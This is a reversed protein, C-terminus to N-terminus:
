VAEVARKALGEVDTRSLVGTKSTIVVGGPGLVVTTPVSVSRQLSGPPATWLHWSANHDVRYAITEDLPSFSIATFTVGTGGLARRLEQWQEFNTECYPCTTTMLGVVVPGADALSHLTGTDGATSTLQIDPLIQGAGLQGRSEDRGALAEKLARNQGVLTWIVGTATVAAILVLVSGVWERILPQPQNAM